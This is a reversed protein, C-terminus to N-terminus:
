TALQVAVVLLKMPLTEKSNGCSIHPTEVAYITPHNSQDLAILHLRENLNDKM